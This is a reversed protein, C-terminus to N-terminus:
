RANFYFGTGDVGAGVGVGPISASFGVGPIATNYGNQYYGDVNGDQDTAYAGYWDSGNNAWSGGNGGWAGRENYASWRGYAGELPNFNGIMFLSAFLCSSLIISKFSRSM